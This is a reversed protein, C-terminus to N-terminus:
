LLGFKFISGFSFVPSIIKTTEVLGAMVILKYFFSFHVIKPLYIENIKNLIM